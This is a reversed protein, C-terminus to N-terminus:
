AEAVHYAIRVVSCDEVPERHGTQVVIGELATSLVEQAVDVGSESRNRASTVESHVSQVSRIRVCRLNQDRRCALVDSSVKDSVKLTVLALALTDTSPMNYDGRGLWGDSRKMFTQALSRGTLIEVKDVHM